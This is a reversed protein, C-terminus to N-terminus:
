GTGSACARPIRVALVTNSSLDITAVLLVRGGQAEIGFPYGAEMLPFYAVSQHPVGGVSASACSVGSSGMVGWVVNGSGFLDLWGNAGALQTPRLDAASLFDM